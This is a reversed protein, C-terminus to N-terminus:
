KGICFSSFISGLVDEVNIRGVLMDLQVVVLRFCEAVIEIQVDVKNLEQLAESLSLVAKMIANKHRENILISSNKTKNKIKNFILNLMEDVGDGTKGSVGPHECCYNIDSKACFILDDSQVSVKFQKICDGKGLLFIRLDSSKAKELARDIGIKEIINETKHIGATDFFNVRYGKLDIGVEILDRTTGAESSVIAREKGALYNILSSKGINPKGLITIDFGERVIESANFNKLEM